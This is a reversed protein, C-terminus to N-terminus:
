LDLEKGGAAHATDTTYTRIGNDWPEAGPAHWETKIPFIERPPTEKYREELEAWPRHPISYLFVYWDALSLNLPIGENVKDNPTIRLWSTIRGALGFERDIEYQSERIRYETYGSFREKQVRWPYERARHAEQAWSELQEGFTDGEGWYLAIIVEEWTACRGYLRPHIELKCQLPDLEHIYNGNEDIVCEGDPYKRVCFKQTFRVGIACRRGNEGEAEPPFLVMKYVADLNKSLMIEKM